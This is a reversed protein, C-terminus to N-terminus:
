GFNVKFQVMDLHGTLDIFLKPFNIHDGSKFGTEIQKYVNSALQQQAM